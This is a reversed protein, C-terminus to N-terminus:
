LTEEANKECAATSDPLYERAHTHFFFSTAPAADTHM